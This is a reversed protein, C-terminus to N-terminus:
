VSFYSFISSLVGGQKVANIALFLIICWGTCYYWIVLIVASSYELRGVFVEGVHVAKIRIFKIIAVLTLMLWCLLCVRLTFQFIVFQSTLVGGQKVSIAL